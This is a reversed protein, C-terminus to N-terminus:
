KQSSESLEGKLRDIELDAFERLTISYKDWAVHGTPAFKNDCPAAKLFAKAILMVSDTNEVAKQAAYTTKQITLKNRYESTNVSHSAALYRLVDWTMDGNAWGCIEAKAPFAAAIRATALLVVTEDKSLQASAPQISLVASILLFTPKMLGLSYRKDAAGGLGSVACGSTAASLGHNLHVMHDRHCAAGRNTSPTQHQPGRQHAGNHGAGFGASEPNAVLLPSPVRLKQSATSSSSAKRETAGAQAPEEDNLTSGLVSLESKRAQRLTWHHVELTGRLTGTM